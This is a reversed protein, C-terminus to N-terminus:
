NGSVGLSIYSSADDRGVRVARLVLGATLFPDPRFFVFVGFVGKERRKWGIRTKEWVWKLRVLRFGVQFGLLFFVPNYNKSLSSLM